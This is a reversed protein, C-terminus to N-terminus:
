GGGLDQESAIQKSQGDFANPKQHEAKSSHDEDDQQEQLRQEAERGARRIKTQQRARIRARGGSRKGRDNGGVLLATMSCTAAAVGQAM